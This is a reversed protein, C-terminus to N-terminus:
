IFPNVIKIKADMLMHTRLKLCTKDSMISSPILLSIYAEDNAYRDIIEEIFLKYLNLVGSTSYLFRSSVIKLIASYKDKDKEYDETLEINWYLLAIKRLSGDYGM